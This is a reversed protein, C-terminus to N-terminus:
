ISAFILSPIVTYIYRELYQEKQEMDNKSDLLRTYGDCRLRERRANESRPYDELKRLKKKEEKRDHREKCFMYFFSHRRSRDVKDQHEIQGDM